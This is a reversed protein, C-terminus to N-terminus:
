MLATTDTHSIDVDDNGCGNVALNAVLAVEQEV